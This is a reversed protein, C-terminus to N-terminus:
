RFYEYLSDVEEDSGHEAIRKVEDAIVKFRRDDDLKEWVKFLLYRM